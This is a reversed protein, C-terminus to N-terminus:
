ADLKRSISFRYSTFRQGAVLSDPVDASSEFDISVKSAARLAIATNEHAPTEISVRANSLPGFIVAENHGPSSPPEVTVLVNIPRGGNLTLVGGLAAGGSTDLFIETAAFTHHVAM